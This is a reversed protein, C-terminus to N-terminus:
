VRNGPSRIITDLDQKQIKRTMKSSKRIAIEIFFQDLVENAWGNIL